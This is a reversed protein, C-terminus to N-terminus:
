AEEYNLVDALLVAFKEEIFLRHERSLSARAALLNMLSELASLDAGRGARFVRGIEARDDNVEDDTALGSRVRIRRLLVDRNVVVGPGDVVIGGNVSGDIRRNLAARSIGLMEAVATKTAVLKYLVGGDLPRFLWDDDILTALEELTKLSSGSTVRV